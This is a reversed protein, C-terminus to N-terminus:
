TNIEEFTNTQPNYRYPLGNPAYYPSPTTDCRWADISDSGLKENWWYVIRTSSDYWLGNGIKILAATGLTTGTLAEKNAVDVVVINQEASCGVMSFVVICILCIVLLKKKM